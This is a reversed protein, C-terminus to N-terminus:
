GGVTMWGMHEGVLGVSSTLISYSMVLGFGFMKLEGYEDSSLRSNMLHKVLNRSSM